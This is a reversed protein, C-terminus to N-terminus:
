KERVAWSMQKGREGNGIDNGIDSKKRRKAEKKGRFVALRM